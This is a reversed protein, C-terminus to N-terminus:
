KVLVDSMWLERPPLCPINGSWHYLESCVHQITYNHEPTIKGQDSLSKTMIATSYALRKIWELTESSLADFAERAWVMKKPDYSRIEELAKYNGFKELLQAHKDQLPLTNVIAELAENISADKLGRWGFLSATGPGRVELLGWQMSKKLIESFQLFSVVSPIAVFASQQVSNSSGGSSNIVSFSMSILLSLVLKNM